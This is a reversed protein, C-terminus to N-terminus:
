STIANEHRDCVCRVTLGVAHLATDLVCWINWPRCCPCFWWPPKM